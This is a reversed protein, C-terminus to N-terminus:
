LHTNFLIVECLTKEKLKILSIKGKKLWPLKCQEPLEVSHCYCYKLAAVSFSNFQLIIKLM